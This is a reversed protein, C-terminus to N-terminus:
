ICDGTGIDLRQEVCRKTSVPVFSRRILQARSRPRDRREAKSCDIARLQAACQLAPGDPKFRLRARGGPERQNARDRYRWRLLAAPNAPHQHRMHQPNGIRASRVHQHHNAIGFIIAAEEAEGGFRRTSPFEGAWDLAVAQQRPYLPPASHWRFPHNLWINSSHTSM